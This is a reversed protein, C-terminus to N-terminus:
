SLKKAMRALADCVQQSNAWFSISTLIRKWGDADISSPGAVRKIECANRLCIFKGIPQKLGHLLIDDNKKESM